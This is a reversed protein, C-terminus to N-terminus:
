DIKKIIFVTAFFDGQKTRFSSDLLLGAYMLEDGGRIGCNFTKDGPEFAIDEWLSVTYRAHPNLHKLYLRFPASNPIALLKFFGVISTDGKSVQWAAYRSDDPSKLRSFMGYQFVTRYSRYFNICRTIHQKEDETLLTPDLEFGLNGFFAVCARFSLPIMRGTQHNPVASVHSGWSSQPYCLSANHQIRIRELADTDDSIWGQPAFAMMGPDFRGGGGACSEFLIHPFAKTLRDYLRYVGLVYRHFFEGQQEAPLQLSYPETIARNMDWKIYSISASACLKSFVDYLYEIIEPRTMDLVYQQRQETRPREPVGIAWDPHLEFLKSRRSIMEPEIWLGFQLGCANVKQALGSIGDPLKRTDPFWDGLSSNDSDRQGFWGDDLVFLEIGMDKAIAAMDLLKKETFNFYTGEWNNLVIPREKDRWLGRTLHKRFIQHFTHSLEDIGHDSYVIVVEPAEFDEGAHLTWLFTEPNIGLQVRTLATSEVEVTAYVNGSYILSFGLAEGYMDSTEPRSLMLFPNQQHGPGGRSSRIGQTGPVLPRKATHFEQTWAGYFTTLLWRSDILDLSMSMVKSLTVTDTGNNHIRVSRVVAPYQSFITYYLYINLSSLKDELTIELTEAESDHDVYLSPMTSLSPKAPFIRHNKYIPDILLSGNSLRLACAPPRYDGNGFTPYEFPLSDRDGVVPVTLSAYASLAKGSYAHALSGDPMITIIYSVTDNYLHFSHQEFCIPM